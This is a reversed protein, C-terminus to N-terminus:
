GQVLVSFANTIRFNSTAARSDRLLETGVLCPVFALYVTVCMCVSLARKYCLQLCFAYHDMGGKKARGLCHFYFYSFGWLFPHMSCHCIGTCMVLLECRNDYNSHVILTVMCTTDKNWLILSVTCFSDTCREILLIQKCM